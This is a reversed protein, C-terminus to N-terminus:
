NSDCTEVDDGPAYPLAAAVGTVCFTFNLKGKKTGATVLSITGGAGTTGSVTEVIDGTFTGTVSAGAVPSGTDDQITVVVAAHKEGKGANVVGPVISAVHVSTPDGGTGGGADLCGVADRYAAIEPITFTAHFTNASTIFPNMTNSTCNCHDANWNHGLEHASLDTASVFAGNFDSQVLSYAYSLNCVVGIWAIGITGGIVEKGTFLQASDRPTGAQASNWENRFQNLLTVADSSTYPQSPSTRVLITTIQHTIGVETEYQGNMTNIVSEIRSQTAGVSGYDSFYEFDADCALESVALATGLAKGGRPTGAGSTLLATGTPYPTPLLEVGCTRGTAIVDEPAYIVHQASGAGPVVGALPQVWWSSGDPMRVVAELGGAETRSGAVSSGPVGAISGRLTRVPAPPVATWAGDHGQALVQFGDARVSRAELQLHVPAGGIDLIATVAGGAGPALVLAAVHSSTLGLTANVEQALAQAPEKGAFAPAALLLALGHSAVLKFNQM